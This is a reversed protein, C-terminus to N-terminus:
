FLPETVCREDVFLCKFGHSVHKGIKDPRFQSANLNFKKDFAVIANLIKQNM